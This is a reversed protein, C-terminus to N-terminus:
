KSKKKVIQLLRWRKNKSLPRTEIIKIIDGENCINKEDHVFYKKTKLISKAYKKHNVRKDEAVLITKNMKNSTVIGIKEKRSSIKVEM